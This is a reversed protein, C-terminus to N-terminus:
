SALKQRVRMVMEAIQDRDFILGASLDRYRFDAFHPNAAANEGGKIWAQAFQYTETAMMDAGQLAVVKPVPAFFMAFLEPYQQKQTMLMKTWWQLKARTGEDFAIMLKEGPKRLRIIKIVLEVCKYFCLEEPSGVEDAIEGVVLPM